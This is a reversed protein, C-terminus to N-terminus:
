LCFIVLILDRFPPTSTSVHVPEEARLVLFACWLDEYTLNQRSATLQFVQKSCRLMYVRGSQHANQRAFKTTCRTLGSRVDCVNTCAMGQNYHFHAPTPRPCTACVESQSLFHLNYVALLCGNPQSVLYRACLVSIRKQRGNRVSRIASALSVSSVRALQNVREKWIIGALEPFFGIPAPM